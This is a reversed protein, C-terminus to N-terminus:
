IDQKRKNRVKAALGLLGMGLLAMTAPEPVVQNGQRQFTLDDLVVFSNSVRFGFIDATGRQIGRFAGANIGGPTLIPALVSIDYQELVNGLNDLAAIIVNPGTTPAYNLFGGVSSVPGSNFRFNMDGSPPNNLGTYGSRGSEWGGNTGLGYSGNGIVSGSHTTSWVIDEGVLGGVQTPGPGVVFPGSFQAFTVVISPSPAITILSARATIASGLCLLGTTVLALLCKKILVM